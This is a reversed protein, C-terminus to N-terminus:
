LKYFLYVEKGGTVQLMCVARICRSIDAALLFGYEPVDIIDLGEMALSSVEQHSTM